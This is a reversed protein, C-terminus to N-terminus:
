FPELEADILDILMAATPATLTRQRRRTWYLDMHRAKHLPYDRYSGIQNSPLILDNEDPAPEGGRASIGPHNGCVRDGPGFVLVYGMCEVFEQGYQWALTRAAGAKLGPIVSHDSMTLTITRGDTEADPQVDIIHTRTVIQDNTTM